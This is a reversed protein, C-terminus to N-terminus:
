RWRGGAMAGSSSSTGRSHRPLRALRGYQGIWAPSQQGLGAVLLPVPLDRQPLVRAGEPLRGEGQSRLLKVKGRFIEGWQDYDVGLLPYEMPRDGSAVGLLLRGESLEDVSNVAKLTLWPQRLLLVVAATGLM